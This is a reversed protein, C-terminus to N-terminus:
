INLDKSKRKKGPTRRTDDQHSEVQISNHIHNQIDQVSMNGHMDDDAIVENQSEIALELHSLELGDLLEKQSFYIKTGEAVRAFCKTGNQRSLNVGLGSLCEYFHEKSNAEKVAMVLLERTKNIEVAKLDRQRKYSFYGDIGNYTAKRKGAFLVFESAKFVLPSEIKTSRYDIGYIGKSNSHETVRIGYKSALVEKYESYSKSRRLANEISKLTFERQQSYTFAKQESLTGIKDYSFRPPLKNEKVNFSENNLGYKYFHAGSKGFRRIYLNKDAELFEVFERRSSSMLRYKDLKEVLQQKKSKYIFGQSDMSRYAMSYWEDGLHKVIDKAEVNQNDPFRNRYVSTIENLVGRSAAKKIGNSFAYREALDLNYNKNESKKSAVTLGYKKEIARCIAITDKKYKTSLFKLPRGEDNVNTVVVHYHQHEQDYHRYITIPRDEGIGMQDRWEEWIKLFTSDDLEDSPHFSFPIDIGDTTTRSNEDAIIDYYTAREMYTMGDGINSYIMESVESKKSEHYQFVGEFSGKIMNDGELKAIM